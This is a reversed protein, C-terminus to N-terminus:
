PKEAAKQPAYRYYVELAIINLATTGVRGCARGIHSSDPEWSGQTPGDKRVQLNILTDRFGGKRTGDAQKKGENWTKWDEGGADRMVQTTYHLFYTDPQTGDAGLGRKLLGAVGETMGANDPTWSDFRVRCWLGVATLSTGPNASSQPTYAYMAKNEGSAVKNLFDIAKKIVKPDVTLDTLKAAYLAQLQWGLISTDGTEAQARYGWSGDGAQAKQIYDIAAQAHPKLAADGTLAYAEVMALTAIAHGYMNSAPTFRGADAGRTAQNKILCDLGRKITKEYKKPQQHTEGVGLFALLAMGTAAADEKSTDVDFHWSGDQQQQRAVWALGLAVARESYDTGGYEKLLNAQTKGKRVIFPRPEKPEPQFASRLEPNLPGPVPPLGGIPPAAVSAPLLVLAASLLAILRPM